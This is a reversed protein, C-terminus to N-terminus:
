NEPITPLINIRQGFQYLNKGNMDIAIVLPGFDRVRLSWLAETVGLDLWQVREIKEIAKAALVGAGGTLEM